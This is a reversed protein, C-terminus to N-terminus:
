RKLINYNFVIYITNYNNNIAVIVVVQKKDILCLSMIIFYHLLNFYM